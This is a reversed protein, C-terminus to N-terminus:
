YWIYAKYINTIGDYEESIADDQKWFNDAMGDNMGTSTPHKMPNSVVEAYVCNENRTDDTDEDDSGAYDVLSLM